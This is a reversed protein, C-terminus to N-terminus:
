AATVSCRQAPALNLIANVEGLLLFEIYTYTNGMAATSIQDTLTTMARTATSTIEGMLM